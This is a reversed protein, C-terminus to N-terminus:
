PFGGIEDMWGDLDFLKLYHAGLIDVVEFGSPTERFFPYNNGEGTDRFGMWVSDGPKNLVAYAPRRVAGQAGDHYTKHLNTTM